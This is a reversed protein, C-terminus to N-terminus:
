IKTGQQHRTPIFVLFSATYNAELQKYIMYDMCIQRWALSIDLLM